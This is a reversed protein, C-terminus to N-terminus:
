DTLLDALAPEAADVVGFLWPLLAGAAVEHVHEGRGIDFTKARIVVNPDTPAIWDVLGHDHCTLLARARTLGIPEAPAATLANRETDAAIPHAAASPTARVYWGRGLAHMLTEARVLSLTKTPGFHLADAITKRTNGTRQEMETVTIGDVEMAARLAIRIADTLSPNTLLQRVQAHRARDPTPLNTSEKAAAFGLTWAWMDDAPYRRTRGDAKVVYVRGQDVRGLYQFEGNESRSVLMNILRTSRAETSTVTASGISLAAQIARSTQRLM